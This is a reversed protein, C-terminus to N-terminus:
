SDWMSKMGSSPMESNVFKKMFSQIKRILHPPPSACYSDLYVLLKLDALVVLLVWHDVLQFPMLWIKYPWFDTTGMWKEYVSDLISRSLLIRLTNRKLTELVESHMIVAKARKPNM